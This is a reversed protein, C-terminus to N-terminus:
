WVIGLRDQRQRQTGLVANIKRLAPLFKNYKHVLQLLVAGLCYKSCNRTSHQHLRRLAKDAVGNGNVSKTEIIAISDGTAYSRGGGSFVIDTDISVREGGKKAVLTVRRYSIDLVPRLPLVFERGYLNSYSTRIYELAQEDLVGYKDVPYEL